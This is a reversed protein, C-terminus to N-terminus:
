RSSLSSTATSRGSLRCLPARCQFATRKYPRLCRMKLKFDSLTPTKRQGSPEAARARALNMEFEGEGLSIQDGPNKLDTFLAHLQQALDPRGEDKVVKQAGVVLDAVYEDQDADAMKDFQRIEMAQAAGSVLLAACFNM